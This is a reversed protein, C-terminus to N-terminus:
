QYMEICISEAKFILHMDRDVTLPEYIAKCENINVNLCIIKKEFAIMTWTKSDAM